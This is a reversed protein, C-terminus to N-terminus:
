YNMNQRRHCHPYIDKSHWEKHGTLCPQCKPPFTETEMIFFLLRGGWSPFAPVSTSLLDSLTSTNDQLIYSATSMSPLTIHHLCIGRVNRYTNLPTGFTNSCIWQMTPRLNKFRPQSQRDRTRSKVHSVTPSIRRELLKHTLCFCFMAASSVICRRGGM